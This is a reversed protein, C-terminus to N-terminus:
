VFGRAMVNCGRFSQLTDRNAADHTFPTGDCGAPEISRLGLPAEVGKLPIM